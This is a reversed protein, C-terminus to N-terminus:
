VPEKNTLMQNIGAQQAQQLLNQAGTASPDPQGQLRQKLGTVFGPSTLKNTVNGFFGSQQPAPQAQGLSAMIGGPAVQGAKSALNGFFGSGGSIGTNRAQPVAGGGETKIPTWGSAHGGGQASGIVADLEEGRPTRIKDGHTGFTTVGEAFQPNNQIFNQLDTVTRNGGGM